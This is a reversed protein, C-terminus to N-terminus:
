MLDALSNIKKTKGARHEKLARDVRRDLKQAARGKLQYTPLKFIAEYASAKKKLERYKTTTITVM